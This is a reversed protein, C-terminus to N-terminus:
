EPTKGGSAPNVVLKGQMKMHGMGCFVTCRIDFEGAKDAVFDINTKEGKKVVADVGFAKIGLGHTVDRSTAVLRVKEGQNVVIPDPAYGYRFAEVQIEKVAAATNTAQDTRNTAAAGPANAEAYVFGSSLLWVTLITTKM